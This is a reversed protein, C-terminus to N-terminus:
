LHMKIPVLIVFNNKTILYYKSIFDELIICKNKRLFNLFNNYIQTDINM